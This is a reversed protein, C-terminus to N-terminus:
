RGPVWVVVRQAQVVLVDVITEPGGFMQPHRSRIHVVYPGLTLQTSDFYSTIFPDYDVTHTSQAIATEVSLAL